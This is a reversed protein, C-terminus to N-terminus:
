AQLGLYTFHVYAGNTPELPHGYTWHRHVDIAKIDYIM